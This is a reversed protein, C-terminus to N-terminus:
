QKEDAYTEKALAKIRRSITMHSVRIGQKALEGAIFRYSRERPEKGSELAHNIAALIFPDELTFQGRSQSRPKV